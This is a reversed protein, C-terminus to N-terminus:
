SVGGIVNGEGHRVDDRYIRLNALHARMWRGSDLTRAYLLLARVRSPKVQDRARARAEALTVAHWIINSTVKILQPATMSACTFAGARARLPHGFLSM